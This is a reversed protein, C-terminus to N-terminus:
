AAVPKAKKKFMSYLLHGLKLRFPVGKAKAKVPKFSARANALTPWEAPGHKLIIKVLATMSKQRHNSLHKLRLDTGADIFKLFGQYGYLLEFQFYVHDPVGKLVWGSDNRVFHLERIFQSIDFNWDTKGDEMVWGQLSRVPTGKVITVQGLKLHTTGDKDRIESSSRAWCAFLVPIEGPLTAELYVICPDVFGTTVKPGPNTKQLRPDSEPSDSQM